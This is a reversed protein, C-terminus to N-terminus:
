AQYPQYSSPQGDQQYTSPSRITDNTINTTITIMSNSSINGIIIM